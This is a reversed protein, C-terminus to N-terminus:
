VVKIAQMVHGLKVSKGCSPCKNTKMGNTYEDEGDVTNISRTGCECPYYMNYLSMITEGTEKKSPCKQGQYVGIYVSM